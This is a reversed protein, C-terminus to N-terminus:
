RKRTRKTKPAAEGGFIAITAASLQRAHRGTAPKLAHAQLMKEFLSSLEIPSYSVVEDVVTTGSRAMGIARGAQLQRVRLRIAPM